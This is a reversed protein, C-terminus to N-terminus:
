AIWVAPNSDLFCSGLAVARRGGQPDAIMFWLAHANEEFDEALGEASKPCMLQAREQSHKADSPPDSGQQQQYPQTLAKAGAILLLEIFQPLVDHEDPAAPCWGHVAVEVGHPLVIESVFVVLVDCGESDHLSRYGDNLAAVNARDAIKVLAAALNEPRQGDEILDTVHRYGIAAPEIIEVDALAAAHNDQAIFGAAQKEGPTRRDAARDHEISNTELDDANDFANAMTVIIVLVQLIKNRVGGHM